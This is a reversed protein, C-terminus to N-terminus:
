NSTIKRERVIASWKADEKKMFDTLEARSMPQPTMGHHILADKVGPDNLVKVIEQNWRDLLPAPTKGPAVFAYWNLAEFGPYGAEAVTPINPMYVPRTSGTTALPVLKGAEIHPLATPPAAFYSAIREGLLDQLAPAGGKYPVHVMNIGARQNFLEGALHSASGAGTSAYDLTGPKKKELAVFEALTKVGLSKHAVLVNPFNVGGSIAALDKFPDYPLKMIHPAITLPGISGFLLVSGDPAANAVFQHAINGGAGGRNDVVVSQGINAALKKAILRAAADAAGGAAFGVVLTVPKKPPFDQAQLASGLVMAATALAAARLLNRKNM